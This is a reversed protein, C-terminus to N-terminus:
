KLSLKWLVNPIKMFAEKIFILKFIREWGTKVHMVVRWWFTCSLFGIEFNREKDNWFVCACLFGGSQCECPKCLQNKKKKLLSNKGQFILNSYSNNTQGPLIHLLLWMFFLFFLNCFLRFYPFICISWRDFWKLTWNRKVEPQVYEYMNIQKSTNIHTKKLLIYIFQLLRVIRM